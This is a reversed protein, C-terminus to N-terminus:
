STSFVYWSSAVRSPVLSSFGVAVEQMHVGPSHYRHRKRKCEIIAQIEGTGDKQLQGDTVAYYQRPKAEEGAVAGFNAHLEIRSSRWQKNTAPVMMALAQLFSWLSNNVATEDTTQLKNKVVKDGKM